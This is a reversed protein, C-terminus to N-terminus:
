RSRPLAALLARTYDHRPSDFVAMATGSEVIEGQYMVAVRDSVHRIVSLDHSIFIMAMGLQEKLDALLNMIQSQISVDLASVPEDAIVLRPKLALARAIAIRQREGGSFEHPYRDLATNPLGVLHLLEAIRQKAGGIQHVVLPEGIITGVKHRPNLSGFPDQFVMQVDRRAAKLAPGSKATFDEGDILIRGSDPEMLRMITRGLTTKGSGSEGVIGLVEGPEVTLSVGRVADVRDGHRDVYSKRLDIVRLLSGPRAAAISEDDTVFARTM